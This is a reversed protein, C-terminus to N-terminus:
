QGTSQLVNRFLAGKPSMGIMAALRYSPSIEGRWMLDRRLGMKAIRSRAELTAYLTGALASLKPYHDMVWSHGQDSNYTALGGALYSHDGAVTLNYVRQGAVPVRTVSEVPVGVYADTVRCMGPLGRWHTERTEVASAEDGWVLAALRNAYEGSVRLGVRMGGKARDFSVPYGLQALLLELQGLMDANTSGFCVQLGAFTGKRTESADQHGGAQFLGRVFLRKYRLPWSMVASPVRADAQNARRGFLVGLGHVEELALSPEEEAPAFDRPVFLCDGPSIDGAHIRHPKEACLPLVPFAHNPTCTVVRGGWMRLEVLEDPVGECWQAEVEHPRGDAGLVETGVTVSEIPVSSGNALTVPTGEVFCWSTVDTDISYITQALLGYYIAADRLLDEQLEGVHEIEGWAPGPAFQNVLLFGSLAFETLHGNSYGTFSPHAALESYPKLTKDLYLRISPLLSMFRLSIVRAKQLVLEGNVFWQVLYDGRTETERTLPDLGAAIYGADGLVLQYRGFEPQTTRVGLLSVDGPPVPGGAAGAVGVYRSAGTSLVRPNPSVEEQWLLTGGSLDAQLGSPAVRHVTVMLSAGSALFGQPDHLRLGCPVATGLCGVAM